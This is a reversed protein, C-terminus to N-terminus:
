IILIIIVCMISVCFCLLVFDVILLCFIILVVGLILNLFFGDKMYKDKWLKGYRNDMVLIGNKFLSILNFFKIIIM